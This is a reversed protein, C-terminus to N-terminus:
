WDPHAFCIMEVNERDNKFGYYLRVTIQYLGSGGAEESIQFQIGAENPDFGAAANKYGTVGGVQSETQIQGADTLGGNIYTMIVDAAAQVEAAYADDNSNESVMNQSFSLAFVVSISMLALIIASALVEVLGFGKKNINIM